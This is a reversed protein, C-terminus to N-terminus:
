DKRRGEIMFIFKTEGITNESIGAFNNYEDALQALKKVKESTSRLKDNVLTALPQIGNTDFAIMGHRLENAGVLLKDVGVLIGDISSNLAQRLNSQVLSAFSSAAQEITAEATKGATTQALSLANATMEEEVESVLKTKYLNVTADSCGQGAQQRCMETAQLELASLLTSNGEVQSKINARILERQSLAEQEALNRAQMKLQNVDLGGALETPIEFREKTNLFAQKFNELGQYLGEAGTALQKSSSSLAESKGYISDLKTLFQLDASKLLEPTVVIYADSSEFNETDYSLVIENSGHLEELQLSEYLGPAAAATVLIKQGTSIVKGTNVAVNSNTSETLTTGLTAVFPTYLEGVRSTNTFQWRVEVHGSKGMMEDVTKSENNLTYNVDVKIPLERDTTGTYYIDKGGTSWILQDGNRDFEEFGNLNEIEILTNEDFLQDERADNILHRTISKGQVVGDDQLKVYVTEDQRMALASGAPFIAIVSALFMCLLNQHRKSM